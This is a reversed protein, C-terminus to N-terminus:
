RGTNSDNSFMETQTGAEPIWIELTSYAWDKIRDIYEGFETKNMETTSRPVEIVEAQETVIRETHFKCKLFEHVEDVNVDHGLERFRLQIEKVVVGFYYANQLISRKGRKKIVMVVDCPKFHRLDEDLRKRNMIHLKGSNDVYGFQETKTMVFNKTELQM